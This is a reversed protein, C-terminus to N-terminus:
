HPKAFPVSQAVANNSEGSEVIIGFLIRGGEEMRDVNPTLQNQNRPVSLQNLIM